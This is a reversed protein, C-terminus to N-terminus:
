EMLDNIRQGSKWEMVTELLLKRDTVSLLKTSLHFLCLDFFALAILPTIISFFEVTEHLIKTGQILSALFASSICASCLIVVHKLALKGEAIWGFVTSLVCALLSLMTAQLQFLLFHAYNKLSQLTEEFSTSM